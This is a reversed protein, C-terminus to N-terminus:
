KLKNKIALFHRRNNRLSVLHKSLAVMSLQKESAIGMTDLFMIADNEKKSLIRNNLIYLEYLFDEKNYLYAIGNYEFWCVDYDLYYGNRNFRPNETELKPFANHNPMKMWPQLQLVKVRVNNCLTREM